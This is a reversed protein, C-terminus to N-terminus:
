TKEYTYIGVNFGHFITQKSLKFGAKEIVRASRVNNPEIIAILKDFKLEKLCYDRVAITAETALGKGWESSVLRYGIEVCPEGDIEQHIPGAFGILQNTEKSILAWLGCGHERYHQLIRKQLYESAGERSLPGTVSYEMVQPDGLIPALADLDEESFERIVLRKTEIDM